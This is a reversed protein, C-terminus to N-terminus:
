NLLLKKDGTIRTEPLSATNSAKLDLEKLREAMKKQLEAIATQVNKQWDSEFVAAHTTVVENEVKIGEGLAESPSSLVVVSNTRLTLEAFGWDIWSWFKVVGVRIPIASTFKADGEKVVEYGSELFANATTKRILGIVTEGEPLLVDGLAKGFGNRKRALARAMIDKNNEETESLSPIEPKKPKVQFQREDVVSVIKVTKGTKNELDVEPVEVTVVSRNTACASVALMLAVFLLKASLSTSYKMLRMEKM